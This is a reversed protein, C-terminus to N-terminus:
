SVWDELKGGVFHGLFSAILIVLAGMAIGGFMLAAQEVIEPPLDM